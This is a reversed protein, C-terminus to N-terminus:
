VVFRHRSNELPLVISRSIFSIPRLHFVELSKDFRCKRGDKGQAEANISEGSVDAQMPVAGMGDESWDTMIYLRISPYPRSLSPGSLNDKKLRELLKQDELNWLNQM